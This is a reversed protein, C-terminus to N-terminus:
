KAVWGTNGTGSEKVYFTTGTGGDTNVFLKGVRATVVGDPDGTGYIVPSPSQDVAFLGNEIRAKNDLGGLWVVTGGVYVVEGILATSSRNVWWDFTLQTADSPVTLYNFCFSWEGPVWQQTQTGTTPTGTGDATAAIECRATGAVFNSNNPTKFWAGIGITKGKIRELPGVLKAVRTAGAFTGAGDITLKMSKAAWPLVTTTEVSEATNLTASLTPLGLEFFPDDYLNVIPGTSSTASVAALKRSKADDIVDVRLNKTSSSARVTQCGQGTNIRGVVTLGDVDDADIYPINAGSVPWASNIGHFEVGGCATTGGIVFEPVSVTTYESYCSSFVVGYCNDLTSSSTIGTPAEHMFDLRTGAAGNIILPQTCNELHLSLDVNNFESAQFGIGGFKGLVSVGSGIFGGDCHYLKSLYRVDLNRLTWHQSGSWKLGTATNYPATTNSGWIAFDALTLHLAGNMDVAVASSAVSSVIKSNRGDGKISRYHGSSNMTLTSSVAYTGKPMYVNSTGAFCRLLANTDDTSGDGIAGAKTVDAISQDVAIFRGGTGSNGTFTTGSFSLTGGPGPFVFVGDITSSSSADFRYLNAGIGEVTHGLTSFLQNDHAHTQSFLAAINAVKQVEDLKQIEALTAKKSDESGTSMDSVGFLIKTIDTTSTTTFTHPLENITAALLVSCCLLMLVLPRTIKPRPM